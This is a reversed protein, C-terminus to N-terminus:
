SPNATGPEICIQRAPYDFSITGASWLPVGLTGDFLGAEFAPIQSTLQTRLDDFVLGGIRLEPAQAVTGQVAGGVGHGVKESKGAALFAQGASTRLFPGGLNLAGGRSGLDVMVKLDVPATEQTTMLKIKVVPVNHVLEFPIPHACGSLSGSAAFTIERARYDVRVAGQELVPAGVVLDIPFGASSTLHGLDIAYAPVDELRIPGFRFDGITINSLAKAETGGGLAEGAEGQEVLAIKRSVSRDVLIAGSGSDLVGTITKGNVVVPMTVLNDRLEFPFSVPANEDGSLKAVSGDTPTAAARIRDSAQAEARDTAEITACGPISAM